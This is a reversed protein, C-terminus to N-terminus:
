APDAVLFGRDVGADGCFRGLEGGGRGAVTSSRIRFNLRRHTWVIPSKRNGSGDAVTQDKKGPAAGPTGGAGPAPLVDASEARIQSVLSPRFRKAQECLGIADDAQCSSGM